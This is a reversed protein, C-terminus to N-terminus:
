SPEQIGAQVERAFSKANAFSHGLVSVCNHSLMQDLCWTGHLRQLGHVQRTGTFKVDYIYFMGHFPIYHM